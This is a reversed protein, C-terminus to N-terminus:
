VLFYTFVGGEREMLVNLEFQIAFALYYENEGHGIRQLSLSLVKREFDKGHTMCLEPSIIMYVNEMNKEKYIKEGWFTVM